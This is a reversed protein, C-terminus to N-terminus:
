ERTRLILTVASNEHVDIEYAWDREDLEPYLNIPNRDLHAIVPGREGPRKLCQLIAIMPDPPGLGRTDVHLGDEARWVRGPNDKSM